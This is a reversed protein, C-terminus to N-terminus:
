DNLSEQLEPPYNQIIQLIQNYEYREKDKMAGVEFLTTMYHLNRKEEVKM